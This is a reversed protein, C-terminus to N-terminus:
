VEVLVPFDSILRFFCEGGGVPLHDFGVAFLPKSQFGSDVNAFGDAVFGYTPFGYACDCAISEEELMLFKQCLEMPALRVGFSCTLPLSEELEFSSSPSGICWRPSLPPLGSRRSVTVSISIGGFPKWLASLVGEDEMNWRSRGETLSLGSDVVEM